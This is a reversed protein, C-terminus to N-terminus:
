AGANFGPREKRPGALKAQLIEKRKAERKAV